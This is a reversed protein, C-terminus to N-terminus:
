LRSIANLSVEHRCQDPYVILFVIVITAYCFCGRKEYISNRFTGRCPRSEFCLRMLLWLIIILLFILAYRNSWIWSCWHWIPKNSSDWSVGQQISAQLHINTSAHLWTFTIWHFFSSNVLSTYPEPTYVSTLRASQIPFSSYSLTKVTKQYNWDDWCVSVKHGQAFGLTSPSYLRVSM